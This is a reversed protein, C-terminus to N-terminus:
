GYFEKEAIIGWKRLIALMVLVFCEAKMFHM